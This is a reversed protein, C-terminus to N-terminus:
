DILELVPVRCKDKGFSSKPTASTTFASAFGYAIAREEGFAKFAKDQTWITQDMIGFINIGLDDSEELSNLDEFRDERFFKYKALEPM